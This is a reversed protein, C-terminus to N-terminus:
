TSNLRTALSVLEGSSAEGGARGFCDFWRENFPSSYGIFAFYQPLQLATVVSEVVAFDNGNVAARLPCLVKARDM